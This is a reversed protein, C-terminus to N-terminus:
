NITRGKYSYKRKPRLKSEQYKEIWSNIESSNHNVFQISPVNYEGQQHSHQQQQQQQQSQLKDLLIQIFLQQQTNREQLYKKREDLKQIGSQLYDVYQEAASKRRRTQQHYTTSRQQQHHHYQVNTVHPYFPKQSLTTIIDLLESDQNDECYDEEEEQQQENDYNTNYLQNWEQHSELVAGNMNLTLFTSQKSPVEFSQMM